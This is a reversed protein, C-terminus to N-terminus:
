MTSTCTWFDGMAASTGLARATPDLQRWDRTARLTEAATAKNIRALDAEDVLVAVGCRLLEAADEIRVNVHAGGIFPAGGIYVARLLRMGIPGIPTM